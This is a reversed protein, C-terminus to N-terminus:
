TFGPRSCSEPLLDSAGSPLTTPPRPDVNVRVRANDSVEVARARTADPGTRGTPPTAGM